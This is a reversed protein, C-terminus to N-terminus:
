PLALFAIPDHKKVFAPPKRDEVHKTKKYDELLVTYAWEKLLNAVDDFKTNFGLTCITGMVDLALALHDKSAHPKIGIAFQAIGVADPKSVGSLLKVASLFAHKNGTKQLQIAAAMLAPQVKAAPDTCQVESLRSSVADANKFNCRLEKYFKAGMSNNRNKKDALWAKCRARLHQRLTRQECDVLGDIQEDTMDRLNDYIKKDVLAELENCQGPIVQKAVTM